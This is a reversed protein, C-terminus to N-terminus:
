RSLTSVTAPDDTQDRPLPLNACPYREDKGAPSSACHKQIDESDPKDTSDGSGQSEFDLHNTQDRSIDNNQLRRIQKELSLILGKADEFATLLRRRELNSQGPYIVHSVEKLLGRCIHGAVRLDRLWKGEPGEKLCKAQKEEEKARLAKLFLVPQHVMKDRKNRNSKQYHRFFETLDRTSIPEKVLTQTLITAHDAIARAMPVLVRIAAWTSVHGKKVSELIEESLADLLALRRSVWSQNRGMLHSIETQSLKHRDQLERIVLAQELVEWRREQSRMLVRILAEMERCHWIEALVTDRGCRKLAVVRLYGDILVFSFDGEKVVIVPSIQGCQEISTVLSSVIEARHMRTHAYRLDLHAIEIEKLETEHSYEM